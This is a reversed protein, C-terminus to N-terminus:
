KKNRTFQIETVVWTAGNDRSVRSTEFWGDPGTPKATFHLVFNNLQMDWTASGDPAVTGKGLVLGGPVFGTIDFKDPTVGPGIVALNAVIPEADEPAGPAYGRGQIMIMRGNQVYEIEDGSRSTEVTGDPLTQKKAGKWSGILYSLRAVASDAKDSATASAPKAEPGSDHAAAPIAMAGIALLMAASGARWSRISYNM